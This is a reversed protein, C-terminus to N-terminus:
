VFHATFGTHKCRWREPNLHMRGLIYIYKAHNLSILSKVFISRAEFIIISLRSGNRKSIVIAQKPVSVM